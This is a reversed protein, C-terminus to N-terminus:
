ESIVKALGVSLINNGATTFHIGDACHYTDQGSQLYPTFFAWSDFYEINRKECHEVVAQNYAKVESNHIMKVKPRWAENIPPPPFYILRTRKFNKTITELNNRFEQISVRKWPSADNTGVSVVVLDPELRSIFAAKNVLDCSNWGGTACNFIDYKHELKNELNQVESKSYRGFLSDGFLVLTKM